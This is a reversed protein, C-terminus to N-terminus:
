TCNYLWVAIPNQVCIIAFVSVIQPWQHYFCWHSGCLLAKEQLLGLHIASVKPELTQVGAFTWSYLCANISITYVSSQEDRMSGPHYLLSQMYSCCTADSFVCCRLQIGTSIGNYQDWCSFQMIILDRTM